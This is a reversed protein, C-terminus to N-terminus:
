ESQVYATSGPFIDASDGFPTACAGLACVLLALCSEATWEIGHLCVGSVLRRTAEEQLIPNKVHVYSFFNDLLSKVTRLELEAVVSLPSTTSLDLSGGSGAKLVGLLSIM